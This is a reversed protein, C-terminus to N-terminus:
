VTGCGGSFTTALGAQDFASVSILNANLTPMHLAQMYTITRVKGCVLYKKVVTGERIIEFDGDIAKASDRSHPTTPQYTM